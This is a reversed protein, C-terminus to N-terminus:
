AAGERFVAALRRGALANDVPLPLAAEAERLRDEPVTGRGVEPIMDAIYAPTFEPHPQLTLTTPGIRFGAHDTFDNRAIVAAEPPPSTVQDQHWANLHVTEGGWDYARRGVAWGQRAKEVRGGLAQAVIQHGFCIGVLPRRGHIKRLLDELPPIWGHPEYAGFRSGSVLWGDCLDPDEPVDGEFCRFTRWAFGAGLLAAYLQPYDGHRSALTDRVEGCQLLGLRM